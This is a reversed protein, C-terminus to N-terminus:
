AEPGGTTRVAKLAGGALAAENPQQAQQAQQAHYAILERLVQIAGEIRLLTQSVAARKAELEAIMKQGAEYEQTLGQLRGELVSHM